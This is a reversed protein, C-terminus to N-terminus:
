EDYLRGEVSGSSAADRWNSARGSLSIATRQGSRDRIVRTTTWRVPKTMSGLTSGFNPLATNSRDLLRVFVRVGLLFCSLGLFLRAPTFNFGPINFATFFKWGTDLALRIILQANSLTPM